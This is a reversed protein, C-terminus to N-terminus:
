QIETKLQSPKVVPLKGFRFSGLGEKIHWRERDSRVDVIVTFAKKLKNKKMYIQKRELSGIKKPEGPKHSSPHMTIKDNKGEIVTKVEIGIKGLLVDFPSNNPTTTGGLLKAVQREYRTAIQKKASTVPNYSEIARQARDSLPPTIGTSPRGCKGAEPNCGSGPGGAYLELLLVINM